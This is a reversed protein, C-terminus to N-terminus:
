RNETDLNKKCKIKSLNIYYIGFSVLTILKQVYEKPYGLIVFCM